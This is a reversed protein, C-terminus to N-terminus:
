LKSLLNWEHQGLSSLCLAVLTIETKAVRGTGTRPAEEADRAILGPGLLPSSLLKLICPKPLHAGAV